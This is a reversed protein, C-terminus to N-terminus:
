LLAVEGFSTEHSERSYNAIFTIQMFHFIAPWEIFGYFLPANAWVTRLMLLDLWADNRSFFKTKSPIVVNRFFNLLLKSMLLLLVIM